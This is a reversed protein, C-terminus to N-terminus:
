IFPISVCNQGGLLYFKTYGLKEAIEIVELLRKIDVFNSQDVDLNFTM